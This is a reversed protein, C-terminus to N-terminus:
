KKIDEPLMHIRIALEDNMFVTVDHIREFYRRVRVGDVNFNDRLFRTCGISVGWSNRGKRNTITFPNAGDRVSNSFVVIIDDNETDRGVYCNKYTNMKYNNVDSDFFYIGHHSLSCMNEKVGRSKARKCWMIKM